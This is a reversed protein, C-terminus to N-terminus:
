EEDFNKNKKLMGLFSQRSIKGISINKLEKESHGTRPRPNSILTVILTAASYSLNWLVAEPYMTKIAEMMKMFLPKNFHVEGFEIM